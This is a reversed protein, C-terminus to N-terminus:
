ACYFIIERNWPLISQQKLFEGYARAGQLLISRCKEDDHYACVLV